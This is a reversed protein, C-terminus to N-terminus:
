TPHQCTAVRAPTCVMRRCIGHARVVGREQVKMQKMRGEHEKIAVVSRAGKESHMAEAEQQIATQITKATRESIGMHNQRDFAILRAEEAVAQKEAEQVHTDVAHPTPLINSM